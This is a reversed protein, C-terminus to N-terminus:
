NPNSYSSIVDSVTFATNRAQQQVRICSNDLFKYWIKRHKKSTSHQLSTGQQNAEFNHNKTSFDERVAAYIRGLDSHFVLIYCAKVKPPLFSAASKGKKGRNSNQQKSIDKIILKMEKAEIKCYLQMFGSNTSPRTRRNRKHMIQILFDKPPAYCITSYQHYSAHLKTKPEFSQQQQSKTAQTRIHFDYCRFNCFGAIIFSANKM